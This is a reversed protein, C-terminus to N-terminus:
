CCLCREVRAKVESASTPRSTPQGKPAPSAKLRQERREFEDLSVMPLERRRAQLPAVREQLAGHVRGQGRLRRRAGHPLHLREHNKQQRPPPTSTTAASQLLHQERLKFRRTAHDRGICIRTTAVFAQRLAERRSRTHRARLAADESSSVIIRAYRLVSPKCRQDVPTKPATRRGLVSSEGALGRVVGAGM